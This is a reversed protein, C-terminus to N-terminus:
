NEKIMEIVSGIIEVEDERIVFAMPAFAQADELDPYQGTGFLVKSIAPFYIVHESGDESTQLFDFEGDKKNFVKKDIDAYKGKKPIIISFEKDYVKFKYNRAPLLLPTPTGMVENFSDKKKTTKKKAM